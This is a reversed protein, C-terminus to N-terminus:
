AGVEDIGPGLARDAEAIPEEDRDFLLGVDGGVLLERRYLEGAGLQEIIGEGDHGTLAEEAQLFLFTPVQLGIQGAAPHEDASQSRENRRSILCIKASRCRFFIEMSWARNLVM